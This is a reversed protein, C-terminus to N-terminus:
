HGPRAIIKTEEGPAPKAKQVEQLSTRVKLHDASLHVLVTDGSLDLGVIRTQLDAHEGAEVEITLGPGTRHMTGTLVRQVSGGIIGRDISVIRHALRSAQDRDHTAIIITMGKKERLDHILHEVERVRGSDVAATPEDLILVRPDCVIARAIAMRQLEGGSLTSARQKELGDLGVLSLAEKVRAETEPAGAKRVSLGYSVNQFVSGQFPYPNQHVMTVKKRAAFWDGHRSLPRGDFMLAGTDPHEILALIRLLTSKGAGNPGCIAAIEAPEFAMYGAQLAPWGAYSRTIDSAELIPAMRDM